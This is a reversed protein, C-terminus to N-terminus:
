HHGSGAPQIPPLTGNIPERINGVRGDLVVYSLPPKDAAAAVILRLEGGIAYELEIESRPVSLRGSGITDVNIVGLMAARPQSTAPPPPLDPDAPGQPRGVNAYDTRPQVPHHDLLLWLQYVRVGNPGPSPPPTATVTCNASAVPIDLDCRGSALNLLQPDAGLDEASPVVRNTTPPPNTLLFAVAQLGDAPGGCALLTTFTTMAFWRMFSDKM